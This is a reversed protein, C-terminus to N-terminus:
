APRAAVLSALMEKARRDQRAVARPQLAAILLALLGPIAALVLCAVVGADGPGDNVAIGAAVGVLAVAFATFFGFYIRDSLYCQHGALRIGGATEELRAKVAWGTALTSPGGYKRLILRDERVKVTFARPLDATSVAAQLDERSCGPLMQEFPTRTLLLALGSRRPTPQPASEHDVM